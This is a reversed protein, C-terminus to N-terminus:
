PKAVPFTRSSFEAKHPLQGNFLKGAIPVDFIQSVTKCMSNLLPDQALIDDNVKVQRLTEIRDQEEAAPPIREREIPRWAAESIAHIVDASM